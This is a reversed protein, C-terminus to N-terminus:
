MASVTASISRRGAELRRRHAASKASSARPTQLMAALWLSVRSIVMASSGTAANTAPRRVLTPTATIRASAVPTTLTAWPSGGPSRTCHIAETM